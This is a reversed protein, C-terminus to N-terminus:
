LGWWGEPWLKVEVARLQLRSWRGASHIGCRFNFITASLATVATLANVGAALASVRLPIFFSWQAAWDANAPASWIPRREEGQREERSGRKGTLKSQWIAPSIASLQALNRDIANSQAWKKGFQGGLYGKFDPTLKDWVCFRTHKRCDM